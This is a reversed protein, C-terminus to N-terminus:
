IKKLAKLVKEPTMPVDVWVGIANYVAQCVAPPAAATPAEGASRAGFPGVPEYSEHFLMRPEVPFDVSRLVKYDMLNPNLIKGHDDFVLVESLAFGAGLIAGGIIQNELIKPNVVTGSDQTAVYDLLKIQGTDTDVEVDAFHAAFHRAFATSPPMPLASRGTISDQTGLAESRFCTMVEAIPVRKGPDDVSFIIGEKVDLKSPDNDFFERAAIELLQRKADLCAGWTAFGTRFMATSAVSGRSWPCSDTDGTEIEILDIPIGLTEAAVQSQTTETGSGQRGCSVCLKASGDKLIRVVAAINGEMEEGCLHIGTGAGVARRKAGDIHYPQGWGAWKDKWGIAEAGKKLIEETSGTSLYFLKPWTDKLEKPLLKRYGEEDHKLYTKAWTQRLPDGPKIENKIRFEVPDMGVKEALMDALREVVSGMTVDGVARMCGGTVLNTSVGQCVYRGHPAKAGWQDINFYGVEVKFGYGGNDMITYVDIFTISGDKRCGMRGQTREKHRRKVTAMCEEYDLEIKVPKRVKKALLATVMMFNNSWWEGFSCGSPLGIIRVKSDPIGFAGVVGDKLESPTQTSTWLTVRDGEWEAIAANRGYPAAQQSGFKVDAEVIFDSEKEGQKIDGWEFVNPERANGEAQVQPAGEVLAEEPDFVAPLPEYEVEILELAAEAIEESTAAVAGIEDGVFRARGDFIHGIYNFWVGHWDLDPADKHTVIGVVGPLAEAKATDIKKIIAHPHTSRLIKGYVMGPLSFDVAYKITGTVKQKADKAPISKGVVTFERKNQM